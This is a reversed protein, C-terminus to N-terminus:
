GRLAPRDRRVRKLQGVAGVERHTAGTVCFGRTDGEDSVRRRLDFGNHEDVALLRGLLVDLRACAADDVAELVAAGRADHTEQTHKESDSGPRDPGKANAKRSTQRHRQRKARLL